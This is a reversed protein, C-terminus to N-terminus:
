ASQFNEHDSVHVEEIVKVDENYYGYGKSRKVGNVAVMVHSLARERYLKNIFNLQEKGSHNLRLLFLNVDSQKGIMQADNVVGIPANDFIIYDFQPRLAKVIQQLLPGNLLESPNM